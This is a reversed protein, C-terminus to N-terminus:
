ACTRLSISAPASTFVTSLSPVVAKICETRSDSALIIFSSISLPALTLEFFACSEVASIYAAVFKALVRTNSSAPASTFILPLRPAVGILTATM